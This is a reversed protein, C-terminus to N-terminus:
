NGEFIKWAVNPKSSRKNNNLVLYPFGHFSKSVFFFSKEGSICLTKNKHNWNQTERMMKIPKTYKNEFRNSMENRIDKFDISKETIKVASDDGHYVVVIVFCYHFFFFGFAFVFTCSMCFAVDGNSHARLIPFLRKSSLRKALCRVLFFIAAAVVAVGFLFCFFRVCFERINSPM